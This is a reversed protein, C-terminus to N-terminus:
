AGQIYMITMFDIKAGINQFIVGKETACNAEKWFKKLKAFYIIGQHQKQQLSLILVFYCDDCLFSIFLPKNSLKTYIVLM